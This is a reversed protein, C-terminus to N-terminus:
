EMNSYNVLKDPFVIMMETQDIAFLVTVMLNSKTAAYLLKSYIKSGIEVNGLKEIPGFWQDEVGNNYVTFVQNGDNTGVEFKIKYIGKVDSITKYKKAGQSDTYLMAEEKSSFSYTQSYCFTSTIVLILVITFKYKLM